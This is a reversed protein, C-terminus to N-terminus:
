RGAAAVSQSERQSEIVGRWGIPAKFPRSLVRDLRDVSSASGNVIIDLASADGVGSTCGLHRWGERILPIADVDFGILRACAADAGVLDDSFLVLGAPVAEPVLPGEGEGAVLGDVLILHRRQPTPAITGNCRGFILIRAVDLAMRWATNNGHWAGDIRPELRGAAHRLSRDVIQLWGRGLRSPESHVYDHFRSVATLIGAYDRPFEDGGELPSGFRHHALCSKDAVAGVCGKLACTIGVKGHTKLKPVSVIADADLLRRSIVYVHRGPAHFGETLKPNYDAVRFRAHGNGQASELLSNEGLDFAVTAESSAEPEGRRGMATRYQVVARLDHATVPAEYHHYFREVADAKTDRMLAAWSASQLPANGFEVRGGTGAALLVYDVIARVLAGHTCKAEFAASTENARRHQVFNCLVFVRDAEGIWRSLPNWWRTGFRDRDLGAYRLADRVAGYAHNHAQREDFRDEPYADAPCFPQEPYHPASQVVSVIGARVDASKNM